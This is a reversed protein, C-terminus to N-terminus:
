REPIHADSTPAAGKLLDNLPPSAGARQQLLVDFGIILLNLQEFLDAVTDAILLSLRSPTRSTQTIAVGARAEDAAALAAAVGIGVMNGPSRSRVAGGNSAELATQAPAIAQGFAPANSICVAALVLTSVSLVTQNRM